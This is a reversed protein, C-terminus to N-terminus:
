PSAFDIVYYGYNNYFSYSVGIESYKTTLLNKKHNPDTQDNAWWSVVGQGTLAPYSGYVNETVGSASYGAAAIRTAPTSGDWGTHGFLNKCAMDASHVQAAQTLLPNVVLASLGSQARFGNLASIVEAVKSPDVTYTCAAGAVTTASTNSTTTSASGSPTAGAAASPNVYITVYLYVGTDIPFRKGVPNHLEFFSNATGTKDPATLDVSIDITKGPATYVLSSSDPADMQYGSSFVLSYDSSWSCTGTNKVRWTKVYNARANFKTNDPVTLDAVFAAQDTCNPSNTPLISVPVVTSTSSELTATPAVRTAPMATLTAPPTASAAAERSCASLMISILLALYPSNRLM